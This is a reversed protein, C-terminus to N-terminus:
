ADIHTDDGYCYSSTMKDTVSAYDASDFTVGEPMQDCGPPISTTYEVHGVTPIQRPSGQASAEMPSMPMIPERLTPKETEKKGFKCCVAVFLVAALLMGLAALLMMVQGM